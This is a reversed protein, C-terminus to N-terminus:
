KSAFQNLETTLVAPILEVKEVAKENVFSGNGDAKFYGPFGWVPYYGNSEPVSGNVYRLLLICEEGIEFDLRDLETALISKEDEGYLILDPNLGRGNSTKVNITEGDYEGKYLTQIEVTYETIQENDIVNGDADARMGDPNVMFEKNKKIVKGKIIVEATELLQEKTFRARSEDIEIVTKDTQTEDVIPPETGGRTVAIVGGIILICLCNLAMVVGIRRRKKQVAVYADRRRLVSEAIENYDKM